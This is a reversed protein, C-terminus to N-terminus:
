TSDIVAAKRARGKGSGLNKWGTGVDSQGEQARGRRRHPEGTRLLVHARRPSGTYGGDTGWRRRWRRERRRLADGVGLGQLYRVAGHEWAAVRRQDGGGGAVAHALPICHEAKKADMRFQLVGFDLFM